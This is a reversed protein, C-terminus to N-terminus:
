HVPLVNLKREALFRGLDQRVLWRVYSSVTGDPIDERLHHYEALREAILKDQLSVRVSLLRIVIAVGM